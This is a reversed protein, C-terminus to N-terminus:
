VHHSYLQERTPPEKDKLKLTGSIKLLSSPMSPSLLKQSLLTRVLQSLNTRQSATYIKAEYLLQEPITITTRITQSM